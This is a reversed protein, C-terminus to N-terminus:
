YFSMMSIHKKIKSRITCFVLKFINQLVIIYSFLRWFVNDLNILRFFLVQKEIACVRGLINASLIPKDMSQSADGKTQFLFSKGTKKMRIIRHLILQGYDNKFFVLDGRNLNESNVKKIVVLEGNCIFPSMSKGYVKVRLTKDRNLIEEFLATSGKNITLSPM